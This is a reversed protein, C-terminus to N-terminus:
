ESDEKVTELILRGKDTSYGVIESYSGDPLHVIVEASAPVVYKTNGVTANRLQAATMTM